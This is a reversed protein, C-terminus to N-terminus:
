TNTEGDAGRKRDLIDPLEGPLEDPTHIYCATTAATSHGMLKQIHPLPIGREALETAYAHRLGHFTHDPLTFSFTQIYEKFQRTTVSTKLPQGSRKNEFLYADPRTITLGNLRCYHNLIDAVTQSYPVTRTRNGKSVSISLTRSGSNIDQIRIRHIECARLGCGYALAMAAKLTPDKCEQILTRAQDPTLPTKQVKVLKKKPLARKSVHENLVGSFFTRLSYVAVNYTRVAYEETNLYALYDQADQISLDPLEDDSSIYDFFRNLWIRYSYKTSEAFGSIDLIINLRNLAESKLM